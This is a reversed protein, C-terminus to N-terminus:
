STKTPGTSSSITSRITLLGTSTTTSIGEISATASRSAPRLFDAYEPAPGDIACNSAASRVSVGRRPRHSSVVSM